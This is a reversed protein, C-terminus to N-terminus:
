ENTLDPAVLRGDEGVVYDDPFVFASSQIDMSDAQWDRGAIIETSWTVAIICAGSRDLEGSWLSEIEMDDPVLSGDMIHRGSLLALVGTAINWGQTDANAQGQHRTFVYAAMQTKLTVQGTSHLESGQTGLVAAYVSPSNSIRRKAEEMSFVGGHSGVERLQPMAQRVAAIVAERYEVIM